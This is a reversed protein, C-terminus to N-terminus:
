EKLIDFMLITSYQCESSDNKGGRRQKIKARAIDKDESECLSQFSRKKRQDKLRCHSYINTLQLGLTAKNQLSYGKKVWAKM